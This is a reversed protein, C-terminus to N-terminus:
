TLVEAAKLAAALQDQVRRALAWPSQGGAQAALAAVSLNWAQEGVRLGFRFDIQPNLSVVGALTGSLDGLPTRDVHTLQMEVTVKVGVPGLESKGITLRGGAAEAAAQFLSLGLGTRKATKTTYFPDLVQEPTVQLGTGNDEITIALWDRAPDAAINVRVITAKARLSNEILDLIHLAIERM